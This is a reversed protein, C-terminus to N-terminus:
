PSKCAVKYVSSFSADAYKATITLLYTNNDVTAMFTTDIGPRSIHKAIQIGQAENIRRTLVGDTIVYDVPITTVNDTGNWVYRDMSCHWSGASGAIVNRSSAVDKAITNGAVQVQSMVMYQETTAASVNSVVSFTITMAATLFAMISIVVLLEVLTYGRDVKM